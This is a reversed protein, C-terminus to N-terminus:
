GLRRDLITTTLLLHKETGSSQGLKQGWGGGGARRGWVGEVGVEPDAAQRQDPLGAQPSHVGGEVDALPGELVQLQQM